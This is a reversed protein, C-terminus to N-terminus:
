SKELREAANYEFGFTHRVQYPRIKRIPVLLDFFRLCTEFGFESGKGFEFDWQTLNSL